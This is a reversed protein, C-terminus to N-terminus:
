DKLEAHRFCDTTHDNVMGVAQMFAYCITTGVFNFGRKKLDKSMADSAQTSTPADTIKRWNNQIPAGDVYRWLYQDLSGFEEIIALTGRANKVLSEVKLRNRIIGENALLKELDKPGFKAIREYDFNHLAARYNERKRLVTIWSLGAQAGELIIFEFLKRDDHVPVGWEDDHYAVYLPDEGCWECRHLSM